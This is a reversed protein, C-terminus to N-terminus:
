IFVTRKRWRGGTEDTSFNMWALLGPYIVIYQVLAGKIGKLEQLGAAKCLNECWLCKVLYQQWTYRPM